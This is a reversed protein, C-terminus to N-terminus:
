PGNFRAITPDPQACRTNLLTVTEDTLGVGYGLHAKLELYAPTSLSAVRGGLDVVPCDPREGSLVARVRERHTLTMREFGIRPLSAGDSLAVFRDPVRERHTLTMREFGIRPL